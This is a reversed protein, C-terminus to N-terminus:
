MLNEKTLVDICRVLIQLHSAFIGEGDCFLKTRKGLMTANEYCAEKRAFNEYMM